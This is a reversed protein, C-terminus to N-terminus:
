SAVTRAILEELQRMFAAESFREEADARCQHRSIEKIRRLATVMEETSNCLFGTKGETIVEPTSATRTAIVPVGCALAEIMVSGFPEKWHIPFLLATAGPLIRASTANDYQGIWECEPGLHPKIETEFFEAAGPENPRNGGLVLKIGARRAVEIAVDPGKNRTLRGLCIVYPPTAPVPSFPLTDMDRANHVIEFRTVSPHGSVQSRSLVVFVDRQRRSIHRVEPGSLPNHFWQIVPKKALYISQLYDFRGHNIVLDARLAARLGIFQFLIKRYARSHYASSPPHHITLGGGYDKSGPGAMLHVRHGRKALWECMLNIGRETGGYYKPPVPLIPDAIMLIRRGGQKERLPRNETPHLGHGNRGVQTASSLLPRSARKHATATDGVARRLLEDVQRMFATESFREEVSARCESRSIEEIRHIAAAMEETSDCLFGTKGHTIVEPTSAIRSAIVPVGSALAEIVVVACPENWQIPFLLAGAGALLKIRTAEDYPGVYECEPGLHPKIETEFYEAAGPENPVNGGIVLKIRSRRAAEIATHVGKNETLRGLFLLYPKAAPVPFFPINATDVANHIVDFRDGAPDGSVQSHSVGVFYCGKKRRSLVYRIDYRSLPNQFWHIIPKRIRYLSELYDLRGYNIIVDAGRAARLATFQFLIKRYVRSPYAPSPTRHITLGGGYDKSGPGAILHTHHGQKVLGRCMLDIVRETGGYKAPPVPVIPDAIVLIKM